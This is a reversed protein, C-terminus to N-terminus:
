RNFPIIDDVMERVGDKNVLDRIEKQERKARKNMEYVLKRLLIKQIRPEVKIVINGDILFLTDHVYVMEDVTM